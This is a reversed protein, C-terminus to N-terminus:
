SRTRSRAVHACGGLATNDDASRSGETESSSELGGLKILHKGLCIMNELVDRHQIGLTKKYQKRHESGMGFGKLREVEPKPCLTAAPARYVPPAGWTPHSQTHQFYGNDQMQPAGQMSILVARDIIPGQVLGTSTARCFRYLRSLDSQLFQAAAIGVATSQAKRGRGIGWRPKPRSPSAGAHGLMTEVDVPEKSITAMRFADGREIACHVLVM